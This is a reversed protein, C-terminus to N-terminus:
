THYSHPVTTRAHAIGIQDTALAGAHFDISHGITGDNVLRIVFVDGVRGPLVPGPATRNFTWMRQEVGPAVAREIETVRFTRRHVRGPALPPLEADYAEFGAAPAAMPDLDAAAGAGSPSSDHDADDQEGHHVQEVGARGPGSEEPGTVEVALTMGMQRHGVVSCWGELDRGVVGVEIAAEEGPALRGTDHGTELVLDHVDSDDTNRLVIVLRDGAPVQIRDPAFRMEAAEVVVRTTHGSAAVGAAASTAERDLAAPDLAGGLAVSLVVVSVGAAALGARQGPPRDGEPRRPGSRQARPVDVVPRARARRSARIALLLLPVFAGLSALVVMTVLVRVPSPVPLAAVLLGLNAAVVRLPGGADLVRNAARVAAPGGGLVVPVLYSLAGLLVQAAFGAGLLPTVSGVRAGVEPWSRATGIAPVLVLLAASLWGVGALVSWTPFSAPPKGRAARWGPQALLGIGGLYGALGAALLPRADALAGGVVVVVSAALLPLARRAAVEAGEAIRTRLMTPWLTVLTGLVTLGVWGLLNLAIHAVLVQEHLPDDIGRAMWVGLAAGVPLMAAAVGYFRITPAFRSALARRAGRVLEWGHWGVAGALAVAGTCTVLWRDSLVGLIVLVAGANYLV